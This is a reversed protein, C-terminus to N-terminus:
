AGAHSTATHAPTQHHNGQPVISQTVLQFSSLMKLQYKICLRRFTSRAQASGSSGGQRLGREWGLQSMPSETGRVAVWVNGIGSSGLFLFVLPHEEDYWGNEKRRIAANLSLSFLFPPPPFPMYILSVFALIIIM